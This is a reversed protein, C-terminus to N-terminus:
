QLVTWELAVESLDDLELKIPDPLVRILNYVADRYSYNINEAYHQLQRTMADDVDKTPM